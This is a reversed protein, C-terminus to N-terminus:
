RPASDAEFIDRDLLQEPYHVFKRSDTQVDTGELGTRNCTERHPDEM